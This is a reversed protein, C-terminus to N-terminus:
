SRRVSGLLIGVASLTNPRSCGNQQSATEDRLMRPSSDSPRPPLRISSIVAGSSGFLDLASRIVDGEIIGGGITGSISGDNYVVMNSGSTRPTSGKHSIVTALVLENGQVLSQYIEQFLESM